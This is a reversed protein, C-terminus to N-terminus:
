QIAATLHLVVWAQLESSKGGPHPHISSKSYGVCLLRQIFWFFFGWLIKSQPDREKSGEGGWERRRSCMFTILNEAPNKINRRKHQELRNGCPRSESFSLTSTFHPQIFMQKLFQIHSRTMVDALVLQKRVQLRAQLLLPYFWLLCFSPMTSPLSPSPLPLSVCAEGITIIVEVKCIQGGLDRM